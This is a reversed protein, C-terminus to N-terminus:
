SETSGSLPNPNLGQDRPRDWQMGCLPALFFLYFSFYLQYKSPERFAVPWIIFPQPRINPSHCKFHSILFPIKLSVSNRFVNLSVDSKQPGKCYFYSFCKASWAYKLIKHSGRSFSIVVWELIRAQSFGCISFGPPNCDMPTVFIRCSQAVSCM